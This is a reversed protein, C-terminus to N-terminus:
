IGVDHHTESGGDEEAIQVAILEKLRDRIRQKIKHVAPENMAFAAAVTAVSEGALLRDFVAVSAPDHSQRVARM